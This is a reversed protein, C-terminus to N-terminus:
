ICLIFSHIFSNFFFYSYDSSIVWGAFAGFLLDSPGLELWMTSPHFQSEQFHDESRGVLVKACTQGHTDCVSYIKFIYYTTPPSAWHNLGPNSELPGSNGAGVHYRVATQLETRLSEVCVCLCVCVVSNVCRGHYM